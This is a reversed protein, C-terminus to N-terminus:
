STRDLPVGCDSCADFGQRFRAGCLPCSGSLGPAIPTPAVAAARDLGAAALARELSRVRADWTAALEAPAAARAFGARRIERGALVRLDEPALLAAAVATADFRAYLGRSLHVLPHLAAVPYLLLHLAGAAARGTAAGCSRLMAFALAVEVAVATAIGALAAWLPVPARLPTWVGLPLIVFTSLWALTALARLPVLFPRQRARLARAAEPDGRAAAHAEILDPREREPAAALAALDRRLAEAEEATPAVALLRGAAKVKRGEREPAGLSALPVAELRGGDIVPPDARAWPDLLYLRGPSALFPLDHVAVVEDLPSLGLLHLGPRLVRFRGGRSAFLLQGRRTQALGDLVLFALIWPLIEAVLAYM